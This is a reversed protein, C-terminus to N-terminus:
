CGAVWDNLYALFDLTNVVGNADWDALELDQSWANLYILFDRTDVLGDGNLDADCGPPAIEVISLSDVRFPRDVGGREAAVRLEIFTQVAVFEYEFETWDSAADTYSLEVVPVWNLMVAFALTEPDGAGDSAFCAGRLRYHRGVEAFVVQSMAPDTDAGGDGDLIFMQGPHGGTARWGGGSEIFETNWDGGSDNSPVETEFGGNIVIEQGWSAQSLMAAAVAALGAGITKLKM